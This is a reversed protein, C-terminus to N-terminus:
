EWERRTQANALDTRTNYFTMRTPDVWITEYDEAGPSPTKHRHKVMAVRMQQENPVLAITLIQEPYQSVKGRITARPAPFEAKTGGENVHHLIILAVDLNRALAHLEGLITVLGNFDGADNAVNLLNDLVVCQLHGPGYVEEYAQLELDIDRISPNPNFEFQIGARMIDLAADEIIWDASTGPMSKVEDFTRDTAISVARYMTTRKDTDASFFLTPLKKDIVYWLSLMSKGGNPQAAIMMMQGREPVIGRQTLIPLLGPLPASKASGKEGQFVQLLSEM